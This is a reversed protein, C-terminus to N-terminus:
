WFNITLIKEMLWCINALFVFRSSGVQNVSWYQALLQFGLVRHYRIRFIQCCISVIIVLLMLGRWPHTVWILGFMDM